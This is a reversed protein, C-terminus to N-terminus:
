GPLEAANRINKLSLGPTTRKILGTLVNGPGIEIVEEIGQTPLLLSIERWRVSGTMQQILRQKLTEADVTPIPEVNSVVPVNAAQFEVGDLIEQFETAASAILPSHFAGSVKLPIARKSKVQSMVEHVADPTGSIVVQAPSNDNALVVDPKAAIVADLQERDFNMLAAMMGGSVAEMLEARRKVLHLGVSWDFVGAVYLASYEGLSHGAVLDPQHGREQLLDALITEVVYLCPQTYLTRLLQDSDSQCIDIVSWGLIAEAQTFKEKASPIELLDMGMGTVQSGQGPFVWATKTM